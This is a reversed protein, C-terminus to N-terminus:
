AGNQPQSVHETLLYLTVSADGDSRSRRGGSGGIRRRGSFGLPEIRRNLIGDTLMANERSALFFALATLRLAPM